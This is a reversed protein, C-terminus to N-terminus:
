DGPSTFAIVRRALDDIRLAFDLDREGPERSWTVSVRDGSHRDVVWARDRVFVVEHDEDVPRVSQPQYPM